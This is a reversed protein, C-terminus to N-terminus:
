ILSLVKGISGLIKSMSVLANALRERDQKIKTLDAEAQKFQQTVRAYRSGDGINDQMQKRIVGLYEADLAAISAELAKKDAATLNETKLQILLLDGLANKLRNKALGYNVTDNAM